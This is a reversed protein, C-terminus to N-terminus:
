ITEIWINRIMNEQEQGAKVYFRSIKVYFRKNEIISYLQAIPILSLIYIIILVKFIQKSSTKNDVNDKHM